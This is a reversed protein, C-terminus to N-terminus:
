ASYDASSSSRSLVQMLTEVLHHILVERSPSLAPYLLSVLVSGRVYSFAVFVRTSLDAPPDPLQGALWTTIEDLMEVYVAEALGKSWSLPLDLNLKRRYDLSVGPGDFATQCVERLASRLDQDPKALIARVQELVTRYMQRSVEAFISAVTPFYRHLSATGVGAREAIESLPADPGLEIAAAVVAAVIQQSDARQPSPIPPPDMLPRRAM